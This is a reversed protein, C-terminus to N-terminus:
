EMNELNGHPTVWSPQPFGLEVVLRKMGLESERERGQAMWHGLAGSEKVLELSSIGM